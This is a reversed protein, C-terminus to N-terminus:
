VKERMCMRSPINSAQMFHSMDASFERQLTQRLFPLPSDDVVAESM